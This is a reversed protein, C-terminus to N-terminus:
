KRCEWIKNQQPKPNMRSWYSKKPERTKPKPMGFELCGGRSVWFGLVSFPFGFGSVWFGFGQVRSGFVSFRVGFVRFGFGSFMFCFSWVRSAVGSFGLGSVQFRFISVQFGIDSVRCGIWRNVRAVAQITLGSELGSEQFGDLIQAGIRFRM